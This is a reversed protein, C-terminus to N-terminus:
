AKAVKNGPIRVVKDELELEVIMTLVKDAALGSARILEDIDEGSASILSLLKAHEDCQEAIDLNNKNNDLSYEFLDLKDEKKTKKSIFTQSSFKFNALIDDVSDVLIAGDKILKNCGLARSDYPAGPIAYVERGQELAMNATIISGSKLSAEVVMVGKSLGSVIRNRRPFNSSQPQTKFPYESLILGNRILNKYLTEKEKPYIVDIGTGLVAITKGNVSLAGNHASSDIGKAMGSVITIGNEALKSSLVEACKLASLSADRAGVVALMNESKLLDINGLAYLVPPCDEIQKLNYPYIEDDITIIHVHKIEAIMVEEEAKSRPFLEKKNSINKLAGEVSGYKAIAKRFGIPGIGPTNILQIYSILKNKDVM